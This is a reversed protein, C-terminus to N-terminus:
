KSNELEKAKAEIKEIAYLYADEMSECVDCYREDHGEYSDSCLRRECLSNVACVAMELGALTGEKLADSRVLRCHNCGEALGKKAADILKLVAEGASGDLGDELYIADEIAGKCFDLTKSINEQENRVAEDLAQEIFAIHDLRETFDECTKSHIQEARTRNTTM